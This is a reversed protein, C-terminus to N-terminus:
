FTNFTTQNASLFIISRLLYIRMDYNIWSNVEWFIINFYSFYGKINVKYNWKQIQSKLDWLIIILIFIFSHWLLILRVMAWYSFRASKTKSGLTPWFGPWGTSLWDLGSDVASGISGNGPKQIVQVLFTNSLSQVQSGQYDSSTGDGGHWSM